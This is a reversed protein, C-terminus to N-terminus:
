EGGAGDDGSAAASEDLELAPASEDLVGRWVDRSAHRRRESTYNEYKTTAQESWQEGGAGDDGPADASQDLALVPASEDHAGCWVGGSAHRRTESAYNEYKATARESWQEGSAGRLPMNVPM